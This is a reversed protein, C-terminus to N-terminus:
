IKPGTVIHAPVNMAQLQGIKTQAASLRDLTELLGLIEIVDALAPSNTRGTVAVRVAPGVVKFPVSLELVAEKLGTEISAKDFTQLSKM